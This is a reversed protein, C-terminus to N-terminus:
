FLLRMGHKNEGLAVNIDGSAVPVEAFRHEFVPAESPFVLAEDARRSRMAAQRETSLTALIEKRREEQLFRSRYLARGDSLM